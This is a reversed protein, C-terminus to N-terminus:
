STRSAPFFQPSIIFDSMTFNKSAMFGLNIFKVVSVFFITSNIAGTATSDSYVFAAIVFHDGFSEGVTACFSIGSLEKWKDALNFSM